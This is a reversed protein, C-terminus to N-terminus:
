GQWSHSIHQKVVLRTDPFIPSPWVGDGTYQNINGEFDHVATSLVDFFANLTEHWREPGLADALGMSNFVDCFLVTVQKKEGEMASRNALIKKALHKPTYSRTDPVTTPHAFASPPAWAPQSCFTPVSRKEWGAPQGESQALCVAGLWMLARGEGRAVQQIEVLEEVIEDLAEGEVELERGLARVSIRRHQQLSERAQTVQDFFKMAAQTPDSRCGHVEVQQRRRAQASGPHVAERRCREARHGPAARQGRLGLAHKALYDAAKRFDAHSPTFVKLSEDALNQVLACSRRAQDSKLGKDRVKIGIASAFETLTWDSIALTLRADSAFWARLKEPLPDPEFLPVLVSTDLYLM